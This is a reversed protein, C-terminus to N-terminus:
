LITLVVNTIKEFSQTGLEFGGQTLKTEWGRPIIFYLVLKSSAIWYAVRRWAGSLYEAEFLIHHATSSRPKSGHKIRLQKVEPTYSFVKVFFYVNSSRTTDYRWCLVKSHPKQKLHMFLKKKLSRRILYFDTELVLSVQAVTLIYSIVIVILRSTIDSFLIISFHLTSIESFNKNIIVLWQSERM